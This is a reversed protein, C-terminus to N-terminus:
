AGGLLLAVLGSVYGERGGGYTPPSVSTSCCQSCRPCRIRVRHDGNRPRSDYCKRLTTCNAGSEYKKQRRKVVANILATGVAVAFGAAGAAPPFLGIAAGLVGLVMAAHDGKTGTAKEQSFLVAGGVIVGALCGQYAEGGRVILLPLIVDRAMAHLSLPTLPLFHEDLEPLQTQERDELLRGVLTRVQPKQWLESPASDIM